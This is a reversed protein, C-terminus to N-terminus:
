AAPSSHCAAKPDSQIVQSETAPGTNPWEVGARQGPVRPQLACPSGSDRLSSQILSSKETTGETSVGEKERRSNVAGFHRALKMAEGQYM